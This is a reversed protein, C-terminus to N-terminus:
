VGLAEREENSLRALVDKRLQLLRKSRDRSEEVLKLQNEISEMMWESLEDVTDSFTELSNPLNVRTFDFQYYLVNDYRYFVSADCGLNNARAMAHLLRSSKEVEFRLARERQAIELEERERRRKQASTEKAFNM